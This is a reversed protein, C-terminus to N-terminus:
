MLEKMVERIKSIPLDTKDIMVEEFRGIDVANEGKKLLREIWMAVTGFFGVGVSLWIEDDFESAIIYSLGLVFMVLIFLNLPQWMPHRANIM